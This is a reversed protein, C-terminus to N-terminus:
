EPEPSVASDEAPALKVIVISLTKLKCCRVRQRRRRHRTGPVLQCLEIANRPISYMGAVRQTVLEGPDYFVRIAIQGEQDM